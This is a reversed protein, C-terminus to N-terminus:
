ASRADSASVSPPRGDDAYGGAAEPPCAGLGDVVGDSVDNALVPVVLKMLLNEFPVSMAFETIYSFVPFTPTPVVLGTSASCTDNVSVLPAKVPYATCFRPLPAADYEPM